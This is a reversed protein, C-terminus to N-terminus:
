CAILLRDIMMQQGVIIKSIEKKLQQIIQNELLIKDALIRLNEAPSLGSSETTLM